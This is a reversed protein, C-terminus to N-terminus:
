TRHQNGMQNPKLMGIEIPLAITFLVQYCVPRYSKYYGKSYRYLSSRFIAQTCGLFNIAISKLFTRPNITSTGAPFIAVAMYGEKLANANKCYRSICHHSGPSVYQPVAITSVLRFIVFILNFLYFHFM